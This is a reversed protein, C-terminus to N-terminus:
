EQPMGQYDPHDPSKFIKVAQGNGLLYIDAEGGKGIAQSPKIHHVKGDIMIGMNM